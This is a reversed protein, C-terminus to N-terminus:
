MPQPTRKIRAALSELRTRAPARRSASASRAMGRGHRRHRHTFVDSVIAHFDHDMVARHSVVLGPSETRSLPKHGFTGGIDFDGRAIQAIELDGEVAIQDKGLLSAAPERGIPVDVGQGSTLIIPGM